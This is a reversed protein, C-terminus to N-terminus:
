QRLLSKPKASRLKSRPIPKPAGPNRFTPELGQKLSRDRNLSNKAAAFASSAMLSSGVGVGLSLQATREIFARRSFDDKGALKLIDNM